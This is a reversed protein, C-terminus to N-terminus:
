AISRLARALAAADVEAGAARAVDAVVRVVAEAVPEDPRLQALLYLGGFRAVMAAWREQEVTRAGDAAKCEIELRRGGAVLGSVDAAGTPPGARFVGRVAGRADRVEVQGTNQRWCRCWPQAGLGLILLQMFEMELASREARTSKAKTKM